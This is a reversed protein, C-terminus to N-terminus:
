FYQDVYQIDKSKNKDVLLIFKNILNVRLKYNNNYSLHTINMNNNIDEIRQDINKFYKNNSINYNLKYENNTDDNNHNIKFYKFIRKNINPKIINILKIKIFHESNLIDDEVESEDEIQNNILLYDEELGFLDDITDTKNRNIKSNNTNHIINTDFNTNQIINTNIKKKNTNNLSEIILSINIEIKSNTEKKQNM